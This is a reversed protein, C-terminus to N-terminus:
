LTGVLRVGNYGEAARKKGLTRDIVSSKYLGFDYSRGNGIKEFIELDLLLLDADGNGAVRDDHFLYVQRHHTFLFHFFVYHSLRLLINGEVDLVDIEIKLIQLGVLVPEFSGIYHEDGGFFLDDINGSLILETEALSFGEPGPDTEEALTVGPIAYNEPDNDFNAYRGMLILSIAPNFSARSSSSTQTADVQKKLEDVEQRLADIDSQEAAHLLQPTTITAAAYLMCVIVLHKM